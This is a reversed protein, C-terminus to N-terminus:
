ESQSPGKARVLEPERVPPRRIRQKPSPHRTGLGAYDIPVIRGSRASKLVAEIVRIDALGEMGSPEPERNSLICESFYLLEPAVQDSKAYQITRKKEGVKLSLSKEGIFEYANELEISGETGVIEYGGTDSAGYGCVFNAFRDKPFRLSISFIERSQEVEPDGRHTSSAFAEVPEAQFLYRAANICYIGIDYLPGGGQAIEGARINDATVKMSFASHFFRPEGIRGSEILEIAKLNAPEFHLRYAVMLKVGCNKAARIMAECERSNVAMPKESLVHIGREAARLAYEKHLHNPLSIYVADISGSGLLRDYDDYSIAIPVKYKRSLALRKKEDGSVLAALE